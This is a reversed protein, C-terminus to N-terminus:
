SRTAVFSTDHSTGLPPPDVPAPSQPHGPIICRGSARLTTAIGSDLSTIAGNHPCGLGAVSGILFHIARGTIVGDAVPLSNPFAMVPPAFVHGRGTECTVATRTASGSFTAGTQSLQMTGSSECRLHTIPGEPEIGFLRQVVSAPVTLQGAAAWVWAGSVDPVSSAAVALSASPATPYNASSEFPARDGGSCAALVLGTISSSLLFIPRM